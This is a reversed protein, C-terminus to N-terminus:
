GAGPKATGPPVAFLDGMDAFRAVRTPGAAIALPLRALPVSAHPNPIAWTEEVVGELGSTTVLLVAGAVHRMKAEADAWVSNVSAIALEPLLVGAEVCLVVLGPVSPDLQESAPYIAKALRYPNRREDKVTDGGVISEGVKPEADPAVRAIVIHGLGHVAVTASTVIPGEAIRHKLAAVMRGAMQHLRPMTLERLDTEQVEDGWWHFWVRCGRLVFCAPWVLSTLTEEIKSRDADAIHKVEIGFPLEGGVAIDAAKQGSSRGFRFPLGATGVMRAVRAEFQTGLYQEHVRLRQLAPGAGDAAARIALVLDAVEALARTCYAYPWSMARVVEHLGDHQERLWAPDFVSDIAAVWAGGRGHQADLAALQDRYRWTEPVVVRRVIVRDGVRFAYGEPKRPKKKGVRFPYRLVHAHGGPESM